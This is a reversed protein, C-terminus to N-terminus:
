RLIKRRNWMMAYEGIYGTEPRADGAPIIFPANMEELVCDSRKSADIGEHMYYQHVYDRGKYAHEERYFVMKRGCFPCPSLREGLNREPNWEENRRNWDRAAKVKTDFWGGCCNDTSHYSCVLKFDTSGNLRMVAFLKPQSGCISCPSCAKLLRTDQESFVWDTM